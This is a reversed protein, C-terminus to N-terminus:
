NLKMRKENRLTCTCEKQLYVRDGYSSAEGVPISSVCGFNSWSKQRKWTTQLQLKCDLNPMEPTERIPIRIRHDQLGLLWCKSSLISSDKRGGDRICRRGCDTPDWEHGVITSIRIGSSAHTRTVNSDATEVNKPLNASWSWVFASPTKKMWWSGSARCPQRGNWM